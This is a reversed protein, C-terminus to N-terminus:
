PAPRPREILELMTGDPDPFLVFRLLPLGPGMSLEAPDSLCDVGLRRLTTVDADIDDTGLALRWIGVTTAGRPAPAAGRDAVLEVFSGLGVVEDYFARSRVPDSCAVVVGSPGGRGPEIDVATGDPDTVPRATAGPASLRLRRFGLTAGGRPAPRPVKWELLDVVTARFGDPGGMMWADWQAMELGFAAGPQPADPATRTAPTLGIEDRYFALSRTLDTCNVNVHIVGGAGVPV